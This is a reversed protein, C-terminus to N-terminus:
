KAVHDWSSGADAVNSLCCFACMCVHYVHQNELALAVHVLFFGVHTNLAIVDLTPIITSIIEHVQLM